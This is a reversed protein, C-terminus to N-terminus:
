PMVSVGFRVQLSVKRNEDPLHITKERFDMGVTTIYKDCFQGDIYRHIFSTKGVNSDGLVM